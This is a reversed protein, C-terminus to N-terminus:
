NGSIVPKRAPRPKSHRSTRRARLSSWSRATSFRPLMTDTSELGHDQLGNGGITIEVKNPNDKMYAAVSQEIKKVDFKGELMCVAEAPRDKRPRHWTIPEVDNLLDPGTPQVAAEAPKSISILQKLLDAGMKKGLESDAVEKVQITIVGDTEAPLYAARDAANALAPLSLLCAALLFRRM